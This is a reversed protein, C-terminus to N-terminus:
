PYQMNVSFIMSLFTMNRVEFWIGAKLTVLCEKIIYRLFNNFVLTWYLFLCYFLIRLCLFIQCLARLICNDKCLESYNYPIIINAKYFLFSLNLSINTFLGSVLELDKTVLDRDNKVVTAEM